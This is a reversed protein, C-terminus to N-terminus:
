SPIRILIQNILGFYIMASDKGTDGRESLSDIESVGEEGEDVVHPLEAAKIEAAAAAM